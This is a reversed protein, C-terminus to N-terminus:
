FNVSYMHRISPRQFPNKMEGLSRIGRIQAPMHLAHPLVSLGLSSGVHNKLISFPNHYTRNLVGSSLKEMNEEHVSTSVSSPSGLGSSDTDESGAILDLENGLTASSEGEMQELLERVTRTECHQKPTQTQLVLDAPKVKPKPNAERTSLTQPEATGFGEKPTNQNCIVTGTPKKVDVDFNQEHKDVNTSDSIEVNKVDVNAQMDKKRLKEVNCDSRIELGPIVDSETNDSKLQTNLIKDLNFKQEDVNPHILVDELLEATNCDNKPKSEHELASEKDIELSEQSSNVHLVVETNRESENILIESIALSDSTTELRTELETSKALNSNASAVSGQGNRFLNPIEASYQTAVKEFKMSLQEIHLSSIEYERKVFQNETDVICFRSRAKSSTSIPSVEFSIRSIPLSYLLKPRKGDSFERLFGDRVVIEVEPKRSKLGVDPCVKKFRCLRKFLSLKKYESVSVAKQYLNIFNTCESSQRSRVALLCTPQTSSSYTSDQEVKSSPIQTEIISM